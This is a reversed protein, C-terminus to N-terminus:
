VEEPGCLGLPFTPGTGWILARDREAIKECRYGLPCLSDASGGVLKERGSIGPLSRLVKSEVEALATCYFPGQLMLKQLLPGYLSSALPKAPPKCYCGM